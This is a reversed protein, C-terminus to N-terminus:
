GRIVFRDTRAAQLVDVEHTQLMSVPSRGSLCENPAAFWHALEWGDMATRLEDCVNDCAPKVSMTALEFQFMPILIQGRWTVSLMTRSVIGRALVSLPQDSLYRLRFTVADCSAFGGYPQFSEQMTVFQQVGLCDPGGVCDSRGSSKFSNPLPDWSAPRVSIPTM